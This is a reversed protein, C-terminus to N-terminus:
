RAPPTQTHATEQPRPSGSSTKSHACVLRPLGHANTERPSSPCPTADRATNRCANDRPQRRDVQNPTQQHKTALLYQAYTTVATVKKARLPHMPVTTQQRAPTADILVPTLQELARTTVPAALLAARRVQRLQPGRVALFALQAFRAGPRLKHVGRRVCYVPFGDAVVQGAYVRCASALFM